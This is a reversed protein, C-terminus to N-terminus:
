LTVELGERAAIVNPHRKQANALIDDVVHDEHYPDHHYLAIRKVGAEIGLEVAQEWSSHGWGIHDPLEEATYQSDVILFDSDKALTLLNKDSWDTGHEVDTCFVLVKGEKEVRYSFAGGPHDHRCSTVRTQGM